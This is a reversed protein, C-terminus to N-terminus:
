STFVHLDAQYREDYSRLVAEAAARAREATEPDPATIYFSNDAGLEDGGSTFAGGGSGTVEGRARDLVDRLAGEVKDDLDSDYRHDTTYQYSLAYEIM